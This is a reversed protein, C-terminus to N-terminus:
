RTRRSCLCNGKRHNGITFVRPADEGLRNRLARAISATSNGRDDLVRQLIERAHPESNELLVGMGCRPGRQVARAQEKVDSGFTEWDSM